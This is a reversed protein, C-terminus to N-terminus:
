ELGMLSKITEEFTDYDYGGVMTEGVIEGQKNVFVTTPVFQIDILYDHYFDENPILHEYTVVLAKIIEDAALHNGDAIIGLVKFGKDAYDNQLKELEPMEQICPPCTTGWINVLTLDYDAFIAETVEEGAMNKLTFEPFKEVDTPGVEAETEELDEQSEVETEVTKEGVADNDEEVVADATESIAPESVEEVAPQSCGLLWLATLLVIGILLMKKM